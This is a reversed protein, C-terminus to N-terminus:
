HGARLALLTRRAFAIEAALAIAVVARGGESRQVFAELHRKAEVHDGDYYALHGLVFRGYGQGAPVAELDERLGRLGTVSRGMACEVLAMHGAYLPKDSTGWRLARHLAHRAEDHRGGMFLVSGLSWYHFARRSAPGTRAALRLHQVAEEVEALAM